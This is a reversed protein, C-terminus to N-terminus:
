KEYNIKLLNLIFEDIWKNTNFDMLLIELESKSSIKQTFKEEYDNYIYKGGFIILIICILSIIGAIILSKKLNVKFKILLISSIICIILGIILLLRIYYELNQNSLFEFINM